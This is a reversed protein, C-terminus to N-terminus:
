QLSVPDFRDHQLHVRAFIYLLPDACAYELLAGNIQHVFKPDSLPQFVLSQFMSADLKPKAPAAV